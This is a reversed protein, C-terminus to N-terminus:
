IEIEKQFKKSQTQEFADLDDNNWCKSVELKFCTLLFDANFYNRVCTKSIKCCNALDCITLIAM